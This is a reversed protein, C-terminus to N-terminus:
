HQVSPPLTFWAEQRHLFTPGGTYSLSGDSRVAWLQVTGATAASISTARVDQQTFPLRPNGMYTLYLQFTLSPNAGTASLTMDANSIPGTIIGTQQAAVLSSKQSRLAYAGSTSTPTTRSNTLDDMMWYVAWDIGAETLNRVQSGQSTTGTIIAERLANKSLSVAWITLLVLMFLTVLITAAGEEGSRGKRPTINFDPM